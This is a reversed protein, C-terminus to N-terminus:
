IHHYPHKQIITHARYIQEMALLWAMDSTLTLEGLNRIQTAAQLIEKPIGHPGGIVFTVDRGNQRWGEIDKAFKTSSFSSGKEDLCILIQGKCQASFLMKSLRDITQAPETERVICSEFRAFSGIREAYIAALQEYERFAPRGVKILRIKL